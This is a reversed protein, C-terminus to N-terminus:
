WMKIDVKSKRCAENLLKKSNEILRCHRLDIFKAKIKDGADEIATALAKAGETANFNNNSLTISELKPILDALEVLCDSNLKCGRLNISKMQGM